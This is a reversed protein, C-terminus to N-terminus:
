LNRQNIYEKWLLRQLCLPYLAANHLNQVSSPPCYFLLQWDAHINDKFHRLAPETRDFTYCRLLLHQVLGLKKHIRFNFKFAM